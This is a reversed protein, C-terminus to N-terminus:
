TKRHQIQCPTLTSVALWHPPLLVVDKVLFHIHDFIFIQLINCHVIAPLLWIYQGADLTHPFQHLSVGDANTKNCFMVECRKGPKWKRQKLDQQKGDENYIDVRSLKPIYIYIYKKKLEPQLKLFM